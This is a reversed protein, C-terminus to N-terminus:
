SEFASCTCYQESAIECEKRVIRLWECCFVLRLSDSLATRIVASLSTSSFVGNYFSGSRKYQLLTSRSIQAYIREGFFRVLLLCHRTLACALRVYVKCVIPVTSANSTFTEEDVKCRNEDTGTHCSRKRRKLKEIRERPSCIQELSFCNFANNILSRHSAM